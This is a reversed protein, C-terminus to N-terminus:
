AEYQILSSAYLVCSNTGDGELLLAWQDEGAVINATTSYWAQTTSNITITAVSGGSLGVLTILGDTGAAPSMVANVFWKVPVTTRRVTSRNTLDLKVSPHSADSFAVTQDIWNRSTATIRGPASSDINSAWHWLNAAGRKWATRLIPIVGLQTGTPGRDCDEIPGGTSVATEVYGNATDAPHCEEFISVGIMRASQEDSCTVYYDTDGTITVRNGNTDVLPLLGYGFNSPVDSAAATTYGWHFSATGVDDGNSLEILVKGYPDQSASTGTNDGVQAMQFRVWLYKAFPSTHWVGRWRTRSADSGNRAPIVSIPCHFEVAKYAYKAIQNTCEALHTQTYASPYRGNRLVQSTQLAKRLIM